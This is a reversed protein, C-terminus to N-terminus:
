VCPFFASFIQLPIRILFFTGWSPGMNKDFFSRETQWSLPHIFSVQAMEKYLGTLMDTVALSFVLINYAKLRFVRCKCIAVCLLFNGFVSMLAVVGFIINFSNVRHAQRSLSDLNHHTDGKSCNTVCKPTLSFLHDM